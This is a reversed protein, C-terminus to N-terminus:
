HGPNGGRHPPRGKVTTHSCPTGASLHDFWSRTENAIPGWYEGMAWDGSSNSQMFLADVYHDPVYAHPVGKDTFLFSDKNDMDLVIVGDEGLCRSAPARATPPTAPRFPTASAWTSWPATRM